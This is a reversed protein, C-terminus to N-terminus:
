LPEPPEFAVLGRKALETLALRLKEDNVTTGFAACLDAFNSGNRDILYALLRRAAASLHYQEGGITM